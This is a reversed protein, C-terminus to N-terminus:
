LGDKDEKALVDRLARRAHYLRSKVTGDPIELVSAIQEVTMSELFHLTLVERHPLGLQLLGYHIQEADEFNPPGPDDGMEGAPKLDHLKERYLSRMQGHNIATNRAIRYLWPALNRPEKLGALGRLVRIWTQQLVDWADQEDCGLRRIFYFLRREWTAVLEELAAREGRQCRLVLLEQCILDKEGPVPHYEEPADL